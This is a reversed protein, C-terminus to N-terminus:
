HKELVIKKKLLDAMGGSPPAYITFGKPVNFKLKNTTNTIQLIEVISDDVAFFAPVEKLFYIKHELNYASYISPKVPCYAECLYEQGKINEIKSEKFKYLATEKQANSNKLEDPLLFGLAVPLSTCKTLEADYNLDSANRLFGERDEMNLTYLKENKLLYASHGMRKYKGICQMERYINTGDSAYTVVASPARKKNKGYMEALTYDNYKIYVGGGDKIKQQFQATLPGLEAFATSSMLCLAMLLFLVIKKM